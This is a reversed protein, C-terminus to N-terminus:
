PTRSTQILVTSSWITTSCCAAGGAEAGDVLSERPRPGAEDYPAFRCCWWLFATRRFRLGCTAKVPVTGRPMRGIRKTGIMTSGLSVSANPLEGGDADVVTMSVDM